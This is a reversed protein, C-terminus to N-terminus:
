VVFVFIFSCFFPGFERPGLEFLSTQSAVSTNTGAITVTASTLDEEDLRARIFSEANSDKVIVNINSNTSSFMYKYSTASSFDANSLDLITLNSCDKFMWDTYVVKSMDFSSLDLTNLNSCGSFMEYMEVVQSTDFSSLDLNTLSTCEGFMFSMTKVKSTDFSSINLEKLNTCGYFMGEVTVAPGTANTIDTGMKVVNSTDFNSLDLSILNDCNCFMGAMSQVKSTNFNSVDITVLSPCNEFLSDMYIVNSTDFSKVNLNTISRCVFFMNSMDKVQSTNFNNLNLNELDYCYAFMWSMNTVKSTDLGSLDLSTLKQCGDFMGQMDTVRSTNINGLNLNTLSRCNHFMSVMNNNRSNDLYTLDISEVNQFNYFMAYGFNLIIGGQGGITVKYTGSGTGDDEVYAIVSGDGANSVDWYGIATDPIVINDKTVISTVDNKNISTKDIWNYGYMIPDGKDSVNGDMSKSIEIKSWKARIIVDEEPMIFHDEGVRTVKNNIIDWGEFEYGMCSPEETSISVTEFVAYDETDPVNSVASGDPSNGDYIVKYNDSLVPTKTSVVYENPTNVIKSVIEESENTPYIGGQGIYKDKLNIDMTLKADRGSKFSPITWIIKQKGNEEELKVNGQSVTIDDISNLIFYDNDIYDVVQFEDYIIPTVSADFLVNNLTEMDAHFQNDSIEKIPDLIIEGMEYQIGTITIYPYNKKLTQYQAIQNPTDENPYGDTLFLVIVEKNDTKVYNKLITEVNVLPQYYNTSGSDRLNNIENVLMIGDNTFGSVIASETDFKILAVRNNENSLLTNILDISDQKVRNFKDGDMSDSTDLVLIIDKDKDKTMLTTDVDFTVRAKGKAIWKASKEVQWSGPEKDEYSTKQSTIIISKTPTLAAFASGILFVSFTVVFIGLIMVGGPNKRSILKVKDWFNSIWKM